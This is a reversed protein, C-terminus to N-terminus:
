SGFGHVIRYRCDTEAVDNEAGQDKGTRRFGPNVSSRLRFANAGGGIAGDREDM